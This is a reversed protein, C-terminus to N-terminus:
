MFNVPNVDTKVRINAPQRVKGLWHAVAPQLAATAGGAVLFRMRYWNRIQYIQAAIPGMIKAGSIAPAAAALDACYKQLVSEKEGEVIIAILQGYPPMKAARRGAMDGAMFEDRAGSCIATLVPHDPQYTQMMVRGPTTGRGARGAVQFLQQFTHEGARFDTGFLGMDADVVGVLTLNPFHHGKALIQTGIVIDIEGSEMKQVLRELAQRSTIIDSSVLATQANPFRVNVEEQIKELGVGRMSVDTGCDPCAKNLPATRGCMHCLLKGVRKHYTMGVSCDPCTATWGCKKCQVIPAFGRRNIFLMVQHGAGITEAIADCLPKSLFGTQETDNVTYSDPRNERLDITTIEPMQAGGFRSTLKLRSYKGVNVNEITEAAPTASALVVPFGAIKARLIAMDRAHYNGMDEQKYSTDHEEDIVILGLDGWPLFLASRTGVVMKIKGGLVGHWIERRRAATLNSHWVVPPAGFRSEFRSMFQATLAIEPMMLLVSKGNKYARWASDFYVQTKGSGTIGDLLHVSFGGNAISAGIKDAALQQEDNLVVNGSDHYVYETFPRTRVQEGAPMLTGNKIMTRVVAGSVHAINQIDSVTMPDNDNSSFADMVAMRKQTMRAGTDFNFSYLTDLRPPSFADPINVILRLVTGPAMLTWDSMRKIWQLDTINLRANHVAVVDRIKDEPLNSDGIGWVIGICPRNMVRVSVFTGIDAGAVLRYDYGANPINAILVKVITGSKFMIM